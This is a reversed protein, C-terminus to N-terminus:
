IHFCRLISLSTSSIVKNQKLSVSQFLSIEGCHLLTEHHQQSTCVTNLGLHLKQNIKASACGTPKETQLRFVHLDNISAISFLPTTVASSAFKNLWCKANECVQLSPNMRIAVNGSINKANSCRKLSKIVRRVALSVTVRGLLVNVM